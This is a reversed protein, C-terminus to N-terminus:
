RPSAARRSPSVPSETARRPGVARECFDLLAARAAATERTGPLLHASRRERDFWFEGSRGRAAASAALWVVTDAAEAPSRL